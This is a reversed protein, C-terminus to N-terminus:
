DLRWVELQWDSVICSGTGSVRTLQIQILHTTQAANTVQSSWSHAALQFPNGLSAYRGFDVDGEPSMRQGNILALLACSTTASGSRVNGSFQVIICDSGAPATMNLGATPINVPVDSLTTFSTESTRLVVRQV